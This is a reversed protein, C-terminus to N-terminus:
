WRVIPAIVPLLPYSQKSCAVGDDVPAAGSGGAYDVNLHGAEAALCTQLLPGTLVFACISGRCGSGPSDKGKNM